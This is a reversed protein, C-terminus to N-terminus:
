LTKIVLRSSRLRGSWDASRPGSPATVVSTCAVATGLHLWLARGGVPDMVDLAGCGWDVAAVAASPKRQSARCVTVRHIRCTPGM